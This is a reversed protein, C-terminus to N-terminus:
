DEYLDNITAIPKAFWGLPNALRQVADVFTKEFMINTDIYAHLGFEEPLKDVFGIVDEHLPNPVKLYIFKIKDGSQIPKYKHQLKLKNIMYNYLLAARVHIPTGKVYITSSGTFKHLNNVGRPFAIEEPLLGNFDQHVQSVFKHLAPQDERLVVELSDKLKQRIPRPTSSKVMSMGMIKMKPKDLRIGDSDVVSMAYHKKQSSLMVDVLNERSMKLRNDYMNLYEALEKFSKNILPQIVQKSVRDMYEIKQEVTRGKCATEVLNELTLVISDTDILVVYDVNTTKNAINIANNLRQAVWQIAIQGTLTVGEAIKLNAYRFYQNAAAGYFSNILIKLAQQKNDLASISFQLEGVRNEFDAPKDQVHQLEDLRTKAKRLVARTEVRKNYFYDMLFASLGLKDRKFCCGNGAVALNQEKAASLDIEKNLLGQVSVDLKVDSITELSMNNSMIIHPYMSNVDFSAVWRHKGRLPEKVYGGAYGLNEGSVKMIPPVKKVGMLYNFIIIDWTKVPSFVDEYLAHSAYAVTLALSMMQLKDDLEDVLDVDIRNYDVFMQPHDTYKDKFSAGPIDLKNKGLEEFAINDLSYSEKAGGLAYKKYLDLYDLQSIGAIHVRHGVRGAVQFEQMRVQNYPSLKRALEEDLVRVMRNYLYPMDFMSSYWGTVVDPYNKTWFSLFQRLLDQESTCLIYKSDDRHEKFELTGFTVLRKHHQDKLTILIITEPANAVDVAEGEATTEIDITFVKVLKPNWEIEGPYNESIYQYVHGPATHVDFNDVDNYQQTFERYDAISGLQMPEVCRDFITTWETDAQTQLWVTPKFPVRLGDVRKGNKYGRVYINNGRQYVNTYFNM